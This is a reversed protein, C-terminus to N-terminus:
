RRGLLRKAILSATMKTGHDRRYQELRLLRWRLSGFAPGAGARSLDGRPRDLAPMPSRVFEILSALTREWTYERATAKSAASMRERLVPDGALASLADALGQVDNPAVAVGFGRATALDGLADGSSCLVPLNAWLYDLIRTRFALVSEAHDKHTSIGINAELLYAGRDEYRIWHEVFFVHTGLLGEREAASRADDAAKMPQIGPNPHKGGLFVLKIQPHKTAARGVARIASVPDLWDYLGGGWLVIL